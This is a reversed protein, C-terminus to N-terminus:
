SHRATSSEPHYLDDGAADPRCCTPKNRVSISTGHAIMPQPNSDDRRKTIPEARQNLPELRADLDEPLRRQQGGSTIRTIM